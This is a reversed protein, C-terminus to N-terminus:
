IRYISIKHNYNEQETQIRLLYIGASLNLTLTITSDTAKKNIVRRGDMTYIEINIINAPAIVTLQEGQGAPNPYVVLAKKAKDVCRECSFAKSGNALTLEVSYCGNLGGLEQYFQETANSIKKENKYWQYGIYNFSSNDVLIVDEWKEVLM